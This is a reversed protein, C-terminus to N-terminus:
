DNMIFGNRLINNTPKFLYKPIKILSRDYDEYEKMIIKIINCDYNYDYNKIEINDYPEIDINIINKSENNEIELEQIVIIIEINYPIMIIENIIKRCEPTIISDMNSDM